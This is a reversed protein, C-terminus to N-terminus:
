AEATEDVTEPARSVGLRAIRRGDLESVTLTRGEAEV